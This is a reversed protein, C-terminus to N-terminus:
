GLVAGPVLGIKKARRGTLGRQLRTLGLFIGVVGPPGYPEYAQLRTVLGDKVDLIFTQPFELHIGNPLVHHTAMEVAAGQGDPSEFYRAIAFGFTKMGGFGWRLGDAIEEKGVMGPSPYHPDIVVADDAFCALAANLNKAEVAAFCRETLERLPSTM